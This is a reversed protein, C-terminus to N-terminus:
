KRVSEPDEQRKAEEFMQLQMMKAQAEAAKARQTYEMFAPIAIAALIGVIFANGTMAEKPASLVITRGQVTVKPLVKFEALYEEMTKLIAKRNNLASRIPPPFETLQGLDMGMALFAYARFINRGGIMVEKFGECLYKVNEAARETTTKIQIRLDKGLDLDVHGLGLLTSAGPASSKGLARVWDPISVSFRFLLGKPFAALLNPHRKKFDTLSTKAALAAEMNSMEAAVLLSDDVLAVGMGDGMECVQHSGIKRITAGPQMRELIDKPFKGSVVASFRPDKNPELWVGIAGSHLDKMPDFGAKTKAMSLMGDLESRQTKWMQLLEPNEAVIPTKEFGDLLQMFAQSLEASDVLVVLDAGSPLHSVLASFVDAKSTKAAQTNNSCAGLLLFWPMALYLIQRM